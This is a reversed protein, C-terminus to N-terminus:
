FLFVNESKSYWVIYFIYSLFFIFVVIANLQKRNTKNFAVATSTLFDSIRWKTRVIHRQNESHSQKNILFVKLRLHQDFSPFLLVGMWTYANLIREFNNGKTVFIM